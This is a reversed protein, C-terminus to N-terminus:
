WDGMEYFAIGDGELRPLVSIPKAMDTTIVPKGAEIITWIKKGLAILQDTVLIIQGLDMKEMVYNPVHEGNLMKTDVERVEVESIMWELATAAQSKNVQEKMKQTFPLSAAMTNSALLGLLLATWLKTM